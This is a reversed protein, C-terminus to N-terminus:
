GRPRTPSLHKPLARPSKPRVLGKSPDDTRMDELLLIQLFAQPLIPAASGNDRGFWAQKFAGYLRAFRGRPGNGFRCRTREFLGCTVLDRRYAARTNESAGREAAMMDLFLDVLRHMVPQCDVCRADHYEIRGGGFGFACRGYNMRQMPLGKAHLASLLQVLQRDTMQAKATGGFQAILALLLDGTWQSAVLKDLRKQVADEADDRRLSITSPWNM